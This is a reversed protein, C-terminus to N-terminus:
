PTRADIESELVDANWRNCLEMSRGNVRWCHAKQIKHNKPSLRAAATHCSSRGPAPCIRESVRLHRSLYITAAPKHLRSAVKTNYFFSKPKVLMVVHRPCENTSGEALGSDMPSGAGYRAMWFIEASKPQLWHCPPRDSKVTKFISPRVRSMQCDWTPQPAIATKERSHV